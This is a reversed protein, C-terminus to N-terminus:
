GVGAYTEAGRVNTNKVIKDTKKDSSPTVTTKRLMMNFYKYNSVGKDIAEKSAAEVSESTYSSSLKMIGM